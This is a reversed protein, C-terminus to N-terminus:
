GSFELEEVAVLFGPNLYFTYNRATVSSSSCTIKKGQKMLNYSVPLLIQGKGTKM